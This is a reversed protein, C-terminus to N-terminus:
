ASPKIKTKVWKLYKQTEDSKPDIAIAKNLSDLAKKYNGSEYYHRGLRCYSKAVREDDPGFYKKRIELAKIRYPECTKYDKAGEYYNAMADYTHAVFPHNEGVAKKTQWHLDTLLKIPPIQHDTDCTDIEIRQAVRDLFWKIDKDPSIDKLIRAWVKESELTKGKLYFSVWTQLESSYFARSREKKAGKRTMRDTDKFAKKTFIELLKEDEPSREKASVAMPSAAILAAVIMTM